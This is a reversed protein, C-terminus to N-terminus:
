ELERLGGELGLNWRAFGGLKATMDAVMDVCKGNIRQLETLRGLEENETM